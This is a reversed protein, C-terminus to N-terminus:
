STLHGDTVNFALQVNWIRLLLYLRMSIWQFCVSLFIDVLLSLLFRAFLLLLLPM